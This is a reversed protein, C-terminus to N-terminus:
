TSMAVLAPPVPPLQAPFGPHNHSFSPSVPQPPPLSAKSKVNPVCYAEPGCTQYEAYAPIMASGAPTLEPPAAAVAVIATSSARTTAGLTDGITLAGPFGLWAGGDKQDFARSTPTLTADNAISLKVGTPSTLSTM